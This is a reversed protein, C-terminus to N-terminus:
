CPLAARPRPAALEPRATATQTESGRLRSFERGNIGIAKPTAASAPCWMARLCNTRAACSTRAQGSMLRWYRSRFAHAVEEDVACENSGSQAEPQKECQEHSRDDVMSLIAPM